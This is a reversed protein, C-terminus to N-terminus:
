GCAPSRSTPCPSLWDQTPQPAPCQRWNSQHLRFRLKGCTRSHGAPWSSIPLTIQQYIFRADSITRAFRSSFKIDNWISLRAYEPGGRPTRQAHGSLTNGGDAHGFLWQDHCFGCALRDCPARAVIEFTSLANFSSAFSADLHFLKHVCCFFDFGCSFAM